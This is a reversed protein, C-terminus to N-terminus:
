SMRLECLCLFHAWDWAALEFRESSAALQLRISMKSKPMKKTVITVIWEADAEDNCGGTEPNWAVRRRHSTSASTRRTVPELHVEVAPPPHCIILPNLDHANPLPHGHVGQIM